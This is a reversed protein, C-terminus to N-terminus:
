KGLANAIIGVITTAALILVLGLVYIGLQKKLDAKGDPSATVYKIGLFIMMGVAIMVGVWMLTNLITGAINDAEGGPSTPNVTPLSVAFVQSGFVTLMMVALVIVSIVKVSRKSLKLM